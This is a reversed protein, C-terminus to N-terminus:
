VAPLRRHFDESLVITQVSLLSFYSILYGLKSRASERSPSPLGRSFNDLYNGISPILPSNTPSKTKHLEWPYRLTASNAGQWETNVNNHPTEVIQPPLILHLRLPGEVHPGGSYRVRGPRHILQRRPTVRLGHNSV